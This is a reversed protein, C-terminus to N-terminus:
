QIRLNTPPALVLQNGGGGGGSVLPHPYTYPTYHVTWTNTASCRYLTGQAGQDTAFYGVGGGTELSNTTCTTPRNALAGFGMGTTGNFPSTASSQASASVADYYDRNAVIHNTVFPAGPESFPDDISLPVQGGTANDVNQWAYMPALTGYGPTGGAPARGPQKWCPYGYYTGTPARNGDRSQTGDCRGLTTSYGADTPTTSRYHTVSIASDSIPNVSHLFTNGWILIEGSGQHHVLRMGDQWTADGGQRQLQNKYLEFNISGGGHTTGHSTVLCNRVTNHRFVITSSNWLDICGSGLDSASAFDYTNDEMFMNSSTGRVTSAWQNPDNTGLIKLSMFNNPGSFTNHDIVGFFKGSTSVEGLLIAVSSTSFNSFTNHDIRLNNLTGPGFFWIILDAPANQFTFGTIRYTKTNNGSLTGSMGIIPADNVTVVSLGAGAGQLTIGKNNPLEITTSGWTYTGAAFTLTAGDTASSIATNVQAQTTGATCSWTIGSGSCAAHAGSVWWLLVFLAMILGHM